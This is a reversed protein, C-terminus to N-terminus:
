GTRATRERSATSAKPEVADEKKIGWIWVYHAGSLATTISVVVILMGTFVGVDVVGAQAALVVIVLTIQVVTNLKSVISPRMQVSGHLTVLVLYGGVILLDRFVIAVLLWFPLHGLLTLMVCASVVLVKDAIPDLIAGLRSECSFRKAIYGDLGDSIGALLFIALALGYSEDRLVVVLIPAAALRLLTLINPIYSM